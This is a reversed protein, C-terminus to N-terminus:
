NPNLINFPSFRQKEPIIELDKANVLENM